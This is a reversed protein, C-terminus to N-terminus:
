YFRHRSTAPNREPLKIDHEVIASVDTTFRQLKHDRPASKNSMTTVASGDRSCFLYFRLRQNFYGRRMERSGDFDDRLQLHSRVKQFGCLFNNKHM